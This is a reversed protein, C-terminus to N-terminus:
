SEVTFDDHYIQRGPVRCRKITNKDDIVRRKDVVEVSSFAFAGDVEDDIRRQLYPPAQLPQCSSGYQPLALLSM